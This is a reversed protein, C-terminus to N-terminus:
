LHLLILQSHTLWAASGASGRFGILILRYQAALEARQRSFAFRNALFGHLMVLPPGDGVIEYELKAGDAARVSRIDGTVPPRRNSM